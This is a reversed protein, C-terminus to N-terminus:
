DDCEVAGVGFQVNSHRSSETRHVYRWEKTVDFRDSAFIGTSSHSDTSRSADLDRRRVVSASDAHDCNSERDAYDSHDGDADFSKSGYRWLRDLHPLYDPSVRSDRRLAYANSQRSVQSYLIGREERM